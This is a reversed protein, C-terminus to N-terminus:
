YRTSAMKEREGRGSEDVSTQLNIISCSNRDKFSCYKGMSSYMHIGLMPCYVGTSTDLATKSGGIYCVLNPTFYSDKGPRWFDENPLIM